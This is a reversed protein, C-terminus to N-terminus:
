QLTSSRCPQQLKARSSRWVCPCDSNDALDRLTEGAVERNVNLVNDFHRRWRALSEGLTRMPKDNEDLITTCPRVDSKMLHKKKFCSGQGNRKMDVEMGTM